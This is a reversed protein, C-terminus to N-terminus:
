GYGWISTVDIYSVLVVVANLYEILLTVRFEGEARCSSSLPLKSLWDADFHVFILIEIHSIRLVAADLCEIFVTVEQSGETM